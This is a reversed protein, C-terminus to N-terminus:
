PAVVVTYDLSAQGGLVSLDGEFVATIRHNGTSLSATTFTAQRGRV